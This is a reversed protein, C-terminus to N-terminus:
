DVKACRIATRVDERRPLAARAISAGRGLGPITASGGGRRTAMAEAAAGAAGHVGGETGAIGDLAPKQRNGTVGAGRAKATDTGRRPAVGATGVAAAGLAGLVGGATGDMAAEQSCATVMAGGVGRDGAKASDTDRRLAAGAGGTADAGVAGRVGSQHPM